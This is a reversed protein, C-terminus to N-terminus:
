TRGTGLKALLAARLKYKEVKNTDTRPLDEVLQIYRPRMFKPM